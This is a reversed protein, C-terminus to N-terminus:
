RAWRVAGCDLTALHWMFAEYRELRESNLSFAFHMNGDRAHGFIVADCIGHEHLMAGLDGVARALHERPFAVDENILASGPGRAAGSAQCQAKAYTGSYPVNATMLPSTISAHM